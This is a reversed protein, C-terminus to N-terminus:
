VGGGVCVRYDEPFKQQLALRAVMKGVELLCQAASANFAPRLESLYKVLGVFSKQNLEGVGSAWAMLQQRSRQAANPNRAEKLARVLGEDVAEAPNKVVLSAIPAEIGYMHRINRWYSCGLHRNEAAAKQKDNTIRDVLSQNDILHQRLQMETAEPLNSQILRQVQEDLNRRAIRRKKAAPSEAPLAMAQSPPPAPKAKAKAATKPKSTRAM